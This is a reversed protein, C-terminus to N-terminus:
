RHKVVVRNDPYAIKGRRCIFSEDLDDIMKQALIIPICMVMLESPFWSNGTPDTPGVYAADKPANEAMGTPYTIM